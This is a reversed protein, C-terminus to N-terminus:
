VEHDEPRLGYNGLRKKFYGLWERSSVGQPCRLDDGLLEDLQVDLPVDEQRILVMPENGGDDTVRHLGERDMIYQPVKSM